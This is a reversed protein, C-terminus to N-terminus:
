DVATEFIFDLKDFLYKKVGINKYGGMMEIAEKRPELDGRLM